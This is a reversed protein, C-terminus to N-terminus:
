KKWLSGEKVSREEDFIWYDISAIDWLYYNNRARLQGLLSDDSQMKNKEISVLAIPKSEETVVDKIDKWNHKRNLSSDKAGYINSMLLLGFKLSCFEGDNRLYCLISQIKKAYKEIDSEVEVVIYPKDRSCLLIDANIQGTRGKGIQPSPVGDLISNNESLNIWETSIFGIISCNASGYMRQLISWRFSKLLNEIESSTM